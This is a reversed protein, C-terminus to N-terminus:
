AARKQYIMLTEFERRAKLSDAPKDERLRLEFGRKTVLNFVIEPTVAFPPGGEREWIPFVLAIFVGCPKLLQAVVDAYDARRAPDIACLCTYELVYDFAGQWAVPLAFIDAQLVEIPTATNNLAKMDRVAEAAFDVATVKFNHRAFLRADHGRGAGLVVMKGPAFQEQKALREFVPHAHGIDWGVRGQQYRDEWFQASSVNSM